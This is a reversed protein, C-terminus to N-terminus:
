FSLYLLKFVGLTMKIKCIKTNMEDIDGKMSLEMLDKDFEFLLTL